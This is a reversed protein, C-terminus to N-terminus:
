SWNEIYQVMDDMASSRAVKSSMVIKDWDKRNAFFTANPFAKRSGIVPYGTLICADSLSNDANILCAEYVGRDDTPLERKIDKDVSAALIWEKVEEQESESAFLTKPLPSPRPIDTGDFDGYEVLSADNVEVAECLDLFHNLFVFAANAYRGGIKMAAMGAEYFVRDAPLVDSYRLLSFSIKLSIMQVEKDNDAFSLAIRNAQYHAADLCHEFFEVQGEDFPPSSMGKTLDNLYNRLAAYTSYGKQDWPLRHDFIASIVTKAMDLVENTLSLDNNHLTQMAELYDGNDLQKRLVLLAYKNVLETNNHQKALSMAGNWDGRSAFVDIASNLDVNALLDAKGQQKLYNKYRQEIYQSLEPAYDAAVQKAEEFNSDNMLCDVAEKPENCQLFLEAAQFVSGASSRLFLPCFLIELGLHRWVFKFLIKIYGVQGYHQVTAFYGAIQKLWVTGPDLFKTAIDAARLWCKELMTTDNTLEPTIKLYCQVAREYEGQKEWNNAQALFAGADKPGSSLKLADYEDQLTALQSPLYDRAVRVAEAWLNLERAQGILIESIEEPCHKEALRRANDWDQRQVYMLVAEKPKDAKIFEIEAKELDDQEELRLGHKYHVESLKSNFGLKCIEEAFDFAGHDCAFSVVKDVCDLKQLLMVAAEGRVASAWLFALQVAAESGGYQKAIRYADEWQGVARYMKVVPKWANALLYYSEADKFRGEEEMEQAVHVYANTLHEPHFQEILRMMSDHQGANKYMAIAHNPQQMACYLKEADKLRGSKELKGAEELFRDNLEDDTLCKCAVRYADEYMKARNYMDVSRTQQGAALYLREAIEYKGLTAMHDAIQCFQSAYNPGNDLTQSIDLAKQWQQSQVAAELAKGM